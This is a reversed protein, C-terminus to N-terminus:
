SAGSEGISNGPSPSSTFSFVYNVVNERQERALPRHDFV